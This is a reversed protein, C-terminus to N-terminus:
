YGILLGLKSVHGQLLAPLPTLVMLLPIVRILFFYNTVRKSSSYFENQTKLPCLLAIYNLKLHDVSLSTSIFTQYSATQPPFIVANESISGGHDM